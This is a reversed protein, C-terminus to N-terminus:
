LVAGTKSVKRVRNYTPLNHKTQTLSVTLSALFPKPTPTISHTMPPTLVEQETRTTVLETSRFVTVQQMENRMLLPLISEQAEM